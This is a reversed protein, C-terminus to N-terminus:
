QKKKKNVHKSNRRQKQTKRQTLQKNKQKKNKRTILNKRIKKTNMKRPNNIRGGRGVNTSLKSTVINSMDGDSFTAVDLASKQKSPDFPTLLPKSLNAENPIQRQAALKQQEEVRKLREESSLGPIGRAVNTQDSEAVSVTESEPTPEFISDMFEVTMNMFGYMTLYEKIYNEVAANPPINSGYIYNDIESTKQNVRVILEQFYTKTNIFIPDETNIIGKLIDEDIIENVNYPRVIEDCYIYYIQTQLDDAIAFYNQNTDGNNIFYEMLGYSIKDHQNEFDELMLKFFVYMSIKNSVEPLTDTIKIFDQCYKDNDFSMNIEYADFISLYSTLAIFNNTALKSKDFSIPNNYFFKLYTNLKPNNPLLINIQEQSTETNDDITDGDPGGANQDTTSENTLESLYERIADRDLGAYTRRTLRDFSFFSPLEIINVIDKTTFFNRELTYGRAQIMFRDPENSPIFINIFDDLWIKYNPQLINFGNKSTYNSYYICTKDNGYHTVVSKDDINKYRANFTKLSSGKMIGYSMIRPLLKFLCFPLETFTDTIADPVDGGKQVRKNLQFDGLYPPPKKERSSRLPNTELTPNPISKKKIAKVQLPVQEQEQESFPITASVSGPIPQSPTTTSTTPKFLLFCKTGSYIAPINNKVCYSFLVRDITILVLKKVTFERSTDLGGKISTYPNINALAKNVGYGEYMKFCKLDYNGSNVYQCIRAQLGDGARKKTFNFDIKLINEPTYNYNTNEGFNEYFGDVNNNALFGKSTNDLQLNSQETFRKIEKTIYPVNTPHVLSNLICEIEQITGNKNYEVKTEFHENNGRSKTSYQMGKLTITFNSEFEGIGKGINYIRKNGFSECFGNGQYADNIVQPELTTPKGKASDHASEQTFIYAFQDTQPTRDSKMVKTLDGPTDVIFNIKGTGSSDVYNNFFVAIEKKIDRLESLNASDKLNVFQFNNSFTKGSQTLSEKLTLLVCYNEVDDVIRTLQGVGPYSFSSFNQIPINPIGLALNNFSYKQIFFLRMQDYFYDNGDRKKSLADTALNHGRTGGFDHVSDLKQIENTMESENKGCCTLDLNLLDGNGSILNRFNNITNIRGGKM